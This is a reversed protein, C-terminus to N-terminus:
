EEDTEDEGLGTRERPAWGTRRPALESRSGFRRLIARRTERSFALADPELTEDPRTTAPRAVVPILQDQVISRLETWRQEHALQRPSPERQTLWRGVVVSPWFASLPELAHRVELIRTATKRPVTSGNRWNYISRRSAGVLYGIEDNPLDTWRALDELASEASPQVTQEVAQPHTIRLSTADIDTIRWGAKEDWLRVLNIVPPYESYGSVLLPAVLVAPPIASWSSADMLGCVVFGAAAPAATGKQSAASRGPQLRNTTPADPM